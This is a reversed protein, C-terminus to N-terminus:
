LVLGNSSNPRNVSTSAWILEDSLQIFWILDGHWRQSGHADTCTFLSCLIVFSRFSPVVAGLLFSFSISPRRNAQRRRRDGLSGSRRWIWRRQRKNTSYCCFRSCHEVSNSYSRHQQLAKVARCGKGKRHRSSNCWMHLSLSKSNSACYHFLTGNPV